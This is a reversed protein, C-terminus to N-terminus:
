DLKTIDNLFTSVDMKIGTSKTNIEEPIQYFISNVRVLFAKNNYMCTKEFPFRIVEPNMFSVGLELIFLSKNITNQLWKLYLDWAEEDGSLPYVINNDELGSITNDTMSVIYYDRDNILKKLNDFDIDSLSVNQGLGILLKESDKYKGAIDKISDVIM